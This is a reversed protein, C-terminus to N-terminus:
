VTGMSQWMQKNLYRQIYHAPAVNGPKGRLGLCVAEPVVSRLINWFAPGVLLFKLRISPKAGKECNGRETWFQGESVHPSQSFHRRLGKLQMLM